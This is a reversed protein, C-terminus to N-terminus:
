MYRGGTCELVSGTVYSSMPSALFIFCNAVEYASGPRSISFISNTTKPMEIAFCTGVSTRNHRGLHTRPQISAYTLVKKESRKPVAFINSSMIIGFGKGEEGLLNEVPVKM